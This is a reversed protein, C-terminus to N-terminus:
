RIRLFDHQKQVFHGVIVPAQETSGTVPSRRTLAVEVPFRGRPGLDRQEAEGSV